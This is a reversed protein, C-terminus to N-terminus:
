SMIGDRRKEELTRLVEIITSRLQVIERHVRELAAATEGTAASRLSSLIESRTFESINRAGRLDCAIQLNRFEEQTLRFVVM